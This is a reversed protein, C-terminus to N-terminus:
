TFFKLIHAREKSSLEFADLVDIEPNDVWRKPIPFASVASPYLDSTGGREIALVWHVVPSRILDLLRELSLKPENPQVVTCTHGVFVGDRCVEAKIGHQGRIRQIVIKPNEFTKPNKARHMRNPQYSLWRREGKFFEKADAYPVCGRGPTDSILHERSGGPQHAVVGTDVLALMGLMVSRQRIREVLEIDTSSVPTGLPCMPLRALDGADIQSPPIPGPGNNKSVALVRVHVAATPFSYSESIETIQHRAIWRKRLPTAYRQTLLADPVILGVGGSSVCRDMALQAFPLSVDFRGSLWPYQKRLANRMASTQKEVSIFPPNGVVVDGLVDTSFADCLTLTADPIAIKAVSLALEDIDHGHLEQVGLEHLALLLAGTGCAPDFGVNHPVHCAKLAAEAVSRALHKPTDFAGKNRRNQNKSVPYPQGREVTVLAARGHPKRRQLSANLGLDAPAPVVDCRTLMGIPGVVLWPDHRYKHALSLISEARTEGASLLSIYESLVAKVKDEKM